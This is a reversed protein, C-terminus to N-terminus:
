QSCPFTITLGRLLIAGIPTEQIKQFGLREESRKIEDDLIRSYNDPGISLNEPPCYLRKGTERKMATNAWSSGTGLGTVYIGIIKDGKAVAAKYDSVNVDALATLVFFFVIVIGMILCKILTKM